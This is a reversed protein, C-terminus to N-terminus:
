SQHVTREKKNPESAGKRNQNDGTLVKPRQMQDANALRCSKWSQHSQALDIQSSIWLRCADMQNSAQNITSQLCQQSPATGETSTQIPM